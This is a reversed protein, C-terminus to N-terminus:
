FFIQQDNSSKHADKLNSLNILESKNIRKLFKATM